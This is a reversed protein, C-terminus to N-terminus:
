EGTLTIKMQRRKDSWLFHLMSIFHVLKHESLNVDWKKQAVLNCSARYRDTKKTRKFKESFSVFNWSLNIAQLLECTMRLTSASRHEVYFNNFNCMKNECSFRFVKHLINTPVDEVFLCVFLFCCFLLRLNKKCIKICWRHNILHLLRTSVLTELEKSQFIGICTWVSMPYHLWLQLM